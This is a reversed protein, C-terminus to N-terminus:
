DNTLKRIEQNNLQHAIEHISQNKITLDPAIEQLPIIVFARETMRPHPVTLKEDKSEFGDYLLIDIDITRPGWRIIRERKLEAEVENCRKLLDYPPLQTEIEVAVNLFWDQQLYGVPATQYYSSIKTVAVDGQVQLLRLAEDINSKVEGMNGGLGLYARPM